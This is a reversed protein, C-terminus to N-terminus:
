AARGACAAISSCDLLVLGQAGRVRRTAAGSSSPVATSAAAAVPAVPEVHVVIPRRSRFWEFLALLAPALVAMSFFALPLSYPVAVGLRRDQLILVAFSALSLASCLSWIIAVRKM